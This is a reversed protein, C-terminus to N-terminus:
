CTSVDMEKLQEALSKAVEHIRGLSGGTASSVSYSLGSISSSESSSGSTKYYQYIEMALSLIAGKEKSEGNWTKSGATGTMNTIDAGYTNLINIAQDIIEEANADAITTDQVLTTLSDCTITVM